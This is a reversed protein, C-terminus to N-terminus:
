DDFGHFSIIAGTINRKLCRPLAPDWCVTDRQLKGQGGKEKPGKSRAKRGMKKEFERIRSKAM